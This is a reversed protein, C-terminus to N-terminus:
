DILRDDWPHVEVLLVRFFDYLHLSKRKASFCVNTINIASYNTYSDCINKRFFNDFDYLMKLNNVM